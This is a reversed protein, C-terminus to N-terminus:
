SKNENSKDGSCALQIILSQLSLCFSPNGSSRNEYMSSVIMKIVLNYLEDNEREEVGANKLYNKAALILSYVQADEEDDQIRLYDKVSDLQNIM